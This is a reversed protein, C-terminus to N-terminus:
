TLWGELGREESKLKGQNLTIGTNNTTRWVRCSEQISPTFVISLWTLIIGGAIYVDTCILAPSLNIDLTYFDLRIFGWCHSSIFLCGNIKFLEIKLGTCYLPWHKVDRQSSFIEAGQLGSGGPVWWSNWRRPASEGLLTSVTHLHWSRHGFSKKKQALLVALIDGESPADRGARVQSKSSGGWQHGGCLEWCQPAVSGRVAWWQAWELGGSPQEWLEPSREVWQIRLIDPKQTGPTYLEQLIKKHHIKLCWVLLLGIPRTSKEM